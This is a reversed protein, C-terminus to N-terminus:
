WRPVSLHRAHRARLPAAIGHCTGRIALALGWMLAIALLPLGVVLLVIIFLIIM